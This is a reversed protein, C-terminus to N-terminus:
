PADGGSGGPAAVRAGEPKVAALPESGMPAVKHAEGYADPRYMKLKEQARTTWDSYVGLDRSKAIATELAEVAKDELPLAQNELTTRYLDEQDPTLGRPMPAELLGRNFNQYAEGLRCLAAASWTPSGFKIVETYAAKLKETRATKIKLVYVLDRQSTYNFHLKLYEEFYPEVLLFRAHGGADVVPPLKEAQPLGVFRRAVEAMILPVNKDDAKLEKLALGENYRALLLQGPAASRAYDRQYAYWHDAVKKWERQRQLILGVNFAIKAADPRSAYAKLYRQWLVLAGPDDGLGEKWLAANFLLDPAREDSPYKDAYALYAAVAEPYRAAREYALALSRMAPKVIADETKPYEKLLQEASAIVLDLQEAQEAILIGNNLAIHANESKPYTKVFERFEKAARQTDKKNEYIDMVYKFRAGESVKALKRAFEGGPPAIRKDQLFKQALESLPEWEEKVELINMSLEAAKQSFPDAPWKLIIEGFRKAAEVYHKHDYFVFAAKYRIVQEDKAKPSVELYTECAAVLQQEVEPIAEEATEKTIKEAKVQRKQEVTGKAKKEDIRATSELARKQATGKAINVLKELALIRNYASRQAYAGGKDLAVVKAYQQGAPEWEELAYLIEAHYFRLNYASESDPFTELYQAYIDRALKYTAVSKTKTAEQHYDQVLERMASEALETAEGLAGKQEANARAWESKPGYAEVLRKMESVVKDRKNLKDYALLIKQQWAPARVHNPQETQLRRYVNIAQDYKGTEFYTAALKNVYDLAKAGGKEKLYSVASEISDIQAYALVVDKLAEARLQVRDRQGSGQQQEGYAIVEKFRDISAQFDHANYDCWALKYVAFSYIKPQKYAAAKEFAARARTLDNSAFYHEGMQVYADPVFKSQPYQKILTNYSALAEAKQGSEYLNYAVVFLVEDKRPYEKYKELIQQYQGLADRRHADSEKTSLKPEPGAAKPDKDHASLWRGYAEDYERGERLSVSRSKEWYLEALQFILDAKQPAADQIKPIIKKLDGILQDRKQSAAEDRAVEDESTPAKVRAPGAKDVKVDEPAKMKLVSTPKKEEAARAPVALLLGAGVAALMAARARASGGGLREM